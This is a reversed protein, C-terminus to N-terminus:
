LHNKRLFGSSSIRRGSSSRRKGRETIFQNQDNLIKKPIYDSRTSKIISEDDNMKHKSFNSSIEFINVNSGPNTLDVLAAKIKNFIYM